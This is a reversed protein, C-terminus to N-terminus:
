SENSSYQSIGELHPKRDKSTGQATRMEALTIASVIGPSFTHSVSYGRMGRLVSDTGSPVSSRWGAKFFAGAIIGLFLWTLKIDSIVDAFEIGAVSELM